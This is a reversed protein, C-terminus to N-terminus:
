SRRRPESGTGGSVRSGVGIPPQVSRFEMQETISGFRLAPLDRLYNMTVRWPAVTGQQPFDKVSRRVYGAAFDLFQVGPVSPDAVPVAAAYHKERMLNLLRCVYESTLDVKLTWSANTYGIAFAFNPVGALMMSKYAMSAPLDVDQGDVSLQMGGFALLNLGTATVVIDAELVDGSALRVGTPVFEAIQDTVMTATGDSLSRFLDGDPVVCLRQDWPNYRPTFHTAVDFGPPLQRRVGRLLFKKAAKPWRRTIRYSAMTTLVNKWRSMLFAPGAPLIRRARDNFADEAPLSIVYTPSRQVLTVGDATRAMAPVLTMATAGSGIVVVKKGAHDLDAPWEQPHVLQGTFSDVGPWDPQFGKDYRYYGSCCYLFRCTMRVADEGQQIQLTWRSDVSSWEARVVRRGFQIRRDIGQERATDRVYRLISPGDAIAASGAWPRLRYGLTLMDSDSRVGPYRFLDWTGGISDRGELITYTLDPCKTQLHHAAGIGSLGAGVIVVDVHETITPSPDPM